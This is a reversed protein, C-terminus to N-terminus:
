GPVALRSGAPGPRAAARKASLKGSFKVMSQSTQESKLGFFELGGDALFAKMAALGQVVTPKGGEGVFRYTCDSM